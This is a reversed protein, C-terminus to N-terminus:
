LVRRRTSRGRVATPHCASYCTDQPASSGRHRSRFRPGMYAIIIRATQATAGPQTQTHDRRERVLEIYVPRLGQGERCVAACAGRDEEGRAERCRCLAGCLDQKLSEGVGRKENMGLTEDEGTERKRLCQFKATSKKRATASFPSPLRVLPLSPLSHHLWTMPTWPPLPLKAYNRQSNVQNRACLFPIM